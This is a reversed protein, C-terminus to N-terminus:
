APAQPRRAIRDLLVLPDEGEAEWRWGGRGTPRYLSWVGQQPDGLRLRALPTSSWEAGLEPYAPARREIITIEPGHITYGFRHHEREDAPVRTACWRSLRTRTEDPVPMDRM